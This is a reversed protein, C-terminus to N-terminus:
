FDILSPMACACWHPASVSVARILRITNPLPLGYGLEPHGRCPQLGKFSNDKVESTFFQAGLPPPPDILADIFVIM